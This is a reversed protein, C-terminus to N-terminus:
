MLLACTLSFATVFSDLASQSFATHTSHTISHQCTAPEGISAFRPTTDAASCIWQITGQRAGFGGCDGGDQIIQAIGVAGNFTTYAWQPSNDTGTSSYDGTANYYSIITNGQCFQAGCSGAATVSGCPRIAWNYGGTTLLLDSTTSLDIGGYGCTQATSSTALLLSVLLSLAVTVIGRQM